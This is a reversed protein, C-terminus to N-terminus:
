ILTNKFEWSSGYEVQFHWMYGAQYWMYVVIFLTCTHPIYTHTYTNHIRTYFKTHQTIVQMHTHTYMYTQTIHIHFSTGSSTDPHHWMPVQLKTHSTLTLRGKIWVEFCQDDRTYLSAQTHFRWRWRGSLVVLEEHCKVSPSGRGVMCM